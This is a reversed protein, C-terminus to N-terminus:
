ISIDLTQTSSNYTFVAELAYQGSSNVKVLKGSDTTAPIPVGKDTLFVIEKDELQSLNIKNEAGFNLNLASKTTEQRAM